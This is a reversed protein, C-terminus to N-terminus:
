SSRDAAWADIEAVLRERVDAPAFAARAARRELEALGSTDLELLRVANALEGPISPRFMAPDDYRLVEM